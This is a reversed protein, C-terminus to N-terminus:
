LFVSFGAKWESIEENDDRSTLVTHYRYTVRFIFRRSIYINTGVGVHAIEDTRDQTQVITTQPEIHIIGTGLEFFPSVRWEPFPVMVINANGMYGDSFTGLIQTAELQATINPTLALGARGSITAAGGFNGGEVGFEWRRSSFDGLNPERFEVHRGSLDLTSHMQSIHVWGEKGRPTRIKFWDTKRKLVEIHEGQGAVYFVPYGRAPGTHMEVYPDSIVLEPTYNDFFLWKASVQGASLVLM